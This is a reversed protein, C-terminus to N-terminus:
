RRNLDPKCNRRCTKTRGDLPGSIMFTHGTIRNPAFDPKIAVLNHSGAPDLLDLLGLPEDTPQRQQHEM